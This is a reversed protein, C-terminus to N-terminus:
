TISAHCSVNPTWSCFTVTAGDPLISVLKLKLPFYDTVLKFYKSRGTHRAAYQVFQECGADTWCIACFGGSSDDAYLTYTVFSTEPSIVIMSEPVDLTIAVTGSPLRGRPM